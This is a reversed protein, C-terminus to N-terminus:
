PASDLKLCKDLSSDVLDKLRGNVEVMPTRETDELRNRVKNLVEARKKREQGTTSSRFAEEVSLTLVCDLDQLAQYLQHQLWIKKGPDVDGPGNRPSSIPIAQRDNALKKAKKSLKDAEDLFLRVRAAADKLDALKKQLGLPLCPAAPQAHQAEVEVWGGLLTSAILLLLTLQGTKSKTM